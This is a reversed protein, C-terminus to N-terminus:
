KKDMAEEIKKMLEDERTENSVVSYMKIGNEYDKIDKVETVYLSEDMYLQPQECFFLDFFSPANKTFTLPNYLVKHLDKYLLSIIVSPNNTLAQNLTFMRSKAAPNNWNPKKLINDPDVIQNSLIVELHVADISLNGYIVLDVIYQLAEDKTMKETVSSKNIINIIDNM